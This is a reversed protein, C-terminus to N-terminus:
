QVRKQMRFEVTLAKVLSEGAHGGPCYSPLVTRRLVQISQISKHGGSVERDERM